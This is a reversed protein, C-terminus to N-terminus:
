KRKKRFPWLGMLLILIGATLVIYPSVTFAAIFLTLEIFGLFVWYLWPIKEFAWLNSVYDYGGRGIM